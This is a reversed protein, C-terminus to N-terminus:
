RPHDRFRRRRALRAIWEAMTWALAAFAQSPTASVGAAALSTVARGLGEPAHALNLGIGIVVAPWEEGPAKGSELLIGGLKAGGILVDNPWKLHPDVQMGGGAALSTIADHAAVGALLSLQMAVTLPLKPRLLLTAYLNGPALVLRARGQGTGRKAIRGLGLSQRGRWFGRAADSRIRRISRKM